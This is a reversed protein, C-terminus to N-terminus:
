RCEGKRTELRQSDFPKRVLSSGSVQGVGVQYAAAAMPWSDGGTPNTDPSQRTLKSSVLEITVFAQMSNRVLQRTDPSWLLRSRPPPRKRGPLQDLDPPREAARAEGVPGAM